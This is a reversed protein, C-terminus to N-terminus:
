TAPYTRGYGGLSQVQSGEGLLLPLGPTYRSLHAMATDTIHTCDLYLERHRQLRSIGALAADTTATHGRDLWELQPASLL